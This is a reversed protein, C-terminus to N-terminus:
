QAAISFSAAERKLAAVKAPDCAVADSGLERETTGQSVGHLLGVYAMKKGRWGGARLRQMMPLYSDHEWDLGCHEMQASLAGRRIVAVEVARPIIAQKLEEPTEEPVNSGDELRAMPLAARAFAILDEIQRQTPERSQAFAPATALLGAALFTRIALKSIL